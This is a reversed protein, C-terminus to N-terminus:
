PNACKSDTVSGNRGSRPGSDGRNFREMVAAVSRKIENVRLDCIKERCRMYIDFAFLAVQDIRGDFEELSADLDAGHSEKGLEARIARKLMFVFSVAQSPSFDQVTRVRIMEDLHRCIGEADMDGVLIGFIGEIGARLTNGVPNAFRDAGKLFTSAGPDYTALTDELWRRVIAERRDQLLNSLTM